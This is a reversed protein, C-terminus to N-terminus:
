RREAAAGPAAGSAAAVAAPADLPVATLLLRDPAPGIFRIPWCTSLTLTPEETPLIAPASGAVVRRDTIRWRVTRYPTRTTVTDGVRLQGLRRFHLDRHASLVANGADGPLPTGPLHGPSANLEAEGVGHVVVEDLGIRPILLQAVPAGLPLEIPAGAAADIAALRAPGGDGRAWEARLRERGALGRAYEAGVAGLLALGGAALLWGAWWHRRHRRFRASRSRRPRM